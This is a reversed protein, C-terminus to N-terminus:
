EFQGTQRNVRATTGDDLSLTVEAQSNVTLSSGDTLKIDLGTATINTGDFDIQDLTVGLHIVDGDNASMITDNGNYMEFYFENHGTGGYMVDNVIGSGGWMSANGAGGIITNAIDNGAMVASANSGSADIVTFAGVYEPTNGDPSGDLWIETAAIDGVKVTAGNADDSAYYFDVYDNNVTVETAAIQAVTESETGRDVLFEKGAADAITVKETAGSEGGRVAVTVSGDANAKVDTVENNDSMGISLADFTATNGGGAEIFEFGTITNQAGNHIGINFFETSGFKDENEYQGVLVNKGGGGYLSSEGIGAILTENGKGGKFITDGKGGILSSIASGLTVNESGVFDPGSWDADEGDVDIGVNGSYSSFDIGGNAAKFYNPNDGDDDVIITGGEVAVAAKISDANNLLNVEAFEQDTAISATVFSKEASDTLTINTGDFEIDGVSTVATADLIDGDFGDNFGNITTYGAGLVVTAAKRDATDADLFIQNNGAGADVTDEAGAFVTDDGLGSRLDSGILKDNNMNGILILDEAIDTADLIGGDVGTFGVLQGYDDGYTDRGDKYGFLRIMSQHNSNLNNVTIRTKRDTGEKVSQNKDFEDRDIATIGGDEFLLLEDQIAEIINDAYPIEPDHLVVGSIGTEDYNNLVINANAAAYTHIKDVSESNATGGMDIVTKMNAKHVVKDNEMTGGVWITDHGSGVTINVQGYEDDGQMIVADGHNGLVINKEGEATDTVWAVSKGATTSLRGTSTGSADFVVLGSVTDASRDLNDNNSEVFTQEATFPDLNLWNAAYMITNASTASYFLPYDYDTVFSSEEGAKTEFGIINEGTKNATIIDDASYTTGNVTVPGESVQLLADEDLGKVVGGATITIGDKDNIVRYIKGNVTYYDYVGDTSDGTFVFETNDDDSTVIDGTVLGTVQALGTSADGTVTIDGATNYTLTDGNIDITYTGDMDRLVISDELGGIGTIEGDLNVTFNDNADTAILANRLPVTAAPITAGVSMNSITFQPDTADSTDSMTVTYGATTALNLPVTIASATTETLYYLNIGEGGDPLTVTDGQSEFVFGTIGAAPTMRFYGDGSYTYTEENIGDTITGSGTTTSVKVSAYVANIADGAAVQLEQNGTTGGILTFNGSAVDITTNGNVTLGDTAGTVVVKDNAVLKDLNTVNTILGDEDFTITVANGAALETPITFNFKTSGITVDATQTITATYGYRTKNITFGAGEIIADDTTDEDYIAINQNKGLTISDGAEQLVFGEVSGNSNLTFYANGSANTYNYVSKAINIETEGAPPILNTVGEASVVRIIDDVNNTTTATLDSLDLEIGNATYTFAVSGADVNALKVEHGDVEFNYDNTVIVSGGVEGSTTITKFDIHDNEEEGTWNYDDTATPSTFGQIAVTVAEGNNYSAGNASYLGLTFFANGSLFSGGSIYGSSMNFSNAASGSVEIGNGDSRQFIVPNASSISNTLTFGTINSVSLETYDIDGDAGGGTRQVGGAIAVGSQRGAAFPNTQGSWVYYNGDSAKDSETLKSAEKKSIETLEVEDEPTDIDTPGVYTSDSATDMSIISASSGGSTSDDALVFEELEFDDLVNFFDNM